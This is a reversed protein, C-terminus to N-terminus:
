YDVDVVSLRSAEEWLRRNADDPGLSSATPLMVLLVRRTKPFRLLFDSWFREREASSLFALPLDFNYVAITAPRTDDQAWQALQALLSDPSVGIFRNSPSLADRWWRAYDWGQANLRACLATERGLWAQSLLMTGTRRMQAVDHLGTILDCAEQQLSRINGNAQGPWASRVSTQPEEYSM